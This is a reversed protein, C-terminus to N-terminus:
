DISISLFYASCPAAPFQFTNCLIVIDLVGSLPTRVCARVWM